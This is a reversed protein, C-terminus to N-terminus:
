LGMPRIKNELYDEPLKVRQAEEPTIIWRYKEIPVEFDESVEVGEAELLKKQLSKDYTSGGRISLYGQKNIVRWWPLDKGHENLIWGVERAARPSGAYLAVQGYSAVRGYPILRIIEIVKQKFPTM